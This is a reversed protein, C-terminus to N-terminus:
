ILRQIRVTQYTKATCETPLEPSFDSLIKKGHSRTLFATGPSM